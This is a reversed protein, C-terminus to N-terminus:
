PRRESGETERSEGRREGDETAMGVDEESVKFLEVPKTAHEESTRTARECVDGATEIRCALGVELVAGRDDWGRPKDIGTARKWSVPDGIAILCVSIRIECDNAQM